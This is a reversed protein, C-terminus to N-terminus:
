ILWSLIHSTSDDRGAVQDDGSTRFDEFGDGGSVVVIQQEVPAETGQDNDFSSESKSYLTCESAARQSTESLTRAHAINLNLSIEEKSKIKTLKPLSVCRSMSEMSNEDYQTWNDAEDAPKRIATVFRVLGTHGHYSSSLSPLELVSTTDEEIVPMRLTLMAGASTGIWLLGECPQLCTVRLQAIKHQRVISNSGQLIRKVEPRVDVIALQQLTYANFLKIESSKQFAIWAALGASTIHTVMRAPDNHAQFFRETQLSEPSIVYIMNEGGCWLSDIVPRMCIVSVSGDGVIVKEKSDIDWGGDESRSIAYMVHGELSVFIRDKM